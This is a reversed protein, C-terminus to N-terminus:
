KGTEAGLAKTGWDLATTPEGCAEFLDRILRRLLQTRGAAAGRTRFGRSNLIRRRSRANHERFLEFILRRVPVENPEPV